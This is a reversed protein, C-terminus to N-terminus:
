AAAARTGLSRYARYVAWVTQGTKDLWLESLDDDPWGAADFADEVLRPWDEIDQDICAQLFDAQTLTMSENIAEAAMRAAREEAAWAAMHERESSSTNQDIM